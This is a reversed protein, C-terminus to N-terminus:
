IFEKMQQCKEGSITFPASPILEFTSMSATFLWHWHFSERGVLDFWMGAKLFMCKSFCCLIGVLCIQEEIAKTILLQFLCDICDVIAARSTNSFISHCFM